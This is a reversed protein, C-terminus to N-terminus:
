AMFGARWTEGRCCTEGPTVGTWLMEGKGFGHAVFDTRCSRHQLQEIQWRSHRLRPKHLPKPATKPRSKSKSRARSRPAPASKENQLAILPEKVAADLALYLAGAHQRAGLIGTSKSWDLALKGAKDFRLTQLQRRNKILWTRTGTKVIKVAFFSDAIAAYQSAPIPTYPGIRAAELHKKVAKLSAQREASYTHYYVNFPKLRRPFETNKLTETLASFGYYPGTWDNTYTNENSAAAYIQREEGVMRSLPSLYFHSPFEMDFRPDGGNLNGIGAKRLSSLAREFPRTNGSWQLLMAKKGPPAFSEAIKLSAIMDHNMDYLNRMYARPAEDSGAIFKKHRERSSTPKAVLGSLTDVLGNEGKSAAAGASQREIIQLEKNRDYHEYFGWNFPHTHTHSGIEVQPLAFITRAISGASPDGGIQEDFDGTVLAVTVPLDPYPQILEKLMVESSLTRNKLYHEIYSVNLWGDGDVHSFYIRRGSLTTTDPIPFLEAGFAARFFAFPNLLWRIRDTQKEYITAFGSQVFGGGSGHAVVVADKNGRHAPARLVLHTKLTPDVQQYLNYPPIVKYMPREFGIFESNLSVIKTGLTESVYGNNFRLGIHALFRDFLFQTQHNIRAGVHDFIVFKLGSGAAQEAWVLYAKERKLPAGFWTLIAAIAM